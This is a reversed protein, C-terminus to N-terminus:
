DRNPRGRRVGTIVAAVAIATGVLGIAVDNAAVFHMFIAM